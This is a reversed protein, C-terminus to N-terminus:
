KKSGKLGYIRLNKDNCIKIKMETLCIWAILKWGREDLVELDLDGRTGITLRFKLEKENTKEQKDITFKM